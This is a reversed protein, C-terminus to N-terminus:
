DPWVIVPLEKQFESFDPIGRQGQQMLQYQSLTYTFISDRWAVFVNAENKWQTVSSNVYSACSLSSDYQKQQAVSDMYPALQSQGVNYFYWLDFQNQLAPIQAELSAESPKPVNPIAWHTIFIVNDASEGFMVNQAQIQGPYLQNVVDVITMTTM